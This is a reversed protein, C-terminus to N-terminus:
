NDRSYPQLDQFFSEYKVNFVHRLIFLTEASIRNIGNEYKQIQQASVGLIKGLADQSLGQNKRVRKLNQGIQVNYKM